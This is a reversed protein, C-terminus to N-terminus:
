GSAEHAALLSQRSPSGAPFRPQERGRCNQGNQAAHAEPEQVSSGRKGEIRAIGDQDGIEFVLSAIGAKVFGQAGCEGDAQLLGAVCVNERLNSKRLTRRSMPLDLM